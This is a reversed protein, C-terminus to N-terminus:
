IRGMNALKVVRILNKVGRGRQSTIKDIFLGTSPWFDFREEVRVHVSDSGLGVYDISNADLMKLSQVKNMQKKTRQMQKLAEFTEGIESM